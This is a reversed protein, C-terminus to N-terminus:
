QKAIEPGTTQRPPSWTNPNGYQNLWVYDRTRRCLEAVRDIRAGVRGRAGGPETVVQGEAGLARMQTLMTRNCRSDTVCVFRYGRGAAIMSLAVGLNGSSSEVITSGPRLLGEREAANVMERAPKLKISGALNLGECKLHLAHGLLPELDFFLDDTNYEEARQIITM